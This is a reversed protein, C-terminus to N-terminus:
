HVSDHLHCDQLKVLPKADLMISKFALAACFALVLSTLAMDPSTKVNMTYLLYSLLGNAIKIQIIHPVIVQKTM